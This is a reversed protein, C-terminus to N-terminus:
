SIRRDNWERLIVPWPVKASTELQAWLTLISWVTDPYL